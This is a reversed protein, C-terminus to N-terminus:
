PLDDGFREAFLDIIHFYSNLKDAFEKAECSSLM